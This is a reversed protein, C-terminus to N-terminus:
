EQTIGIIATVSKTPSMLLSDNLTLGLPVTPSLARFVDRQMELPVDGYGPSFRTRIDRHNEKAEIRIDNEFCDCLAEIRETCIAQLMSARAPSVRETRAILRDPELGLTAAFLIIESCGQLHKALSMSQCTAFGLNLEHNQISVPYRLFCVKGTSCFVMAKRAEELLLLIDDNPKPCRAYRLVEQENLPPLEYSRVISM